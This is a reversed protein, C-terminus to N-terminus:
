ADLGGEEELEEGDMEEAADEIDSMEAAVLGLGEALAVYGPATVGCQRMGGAVLAGALVAPVYGPEAGEMMEDVEDPHRGVGLVESLLDLASVDQELVQRLLRRAVLDSMRGDEALRQILGDLAGMAEAREAKRRESQTRSAEKAAEKEKAPSARFPSAKGTEEFKQDVAARAVKRAVMEHIRGTEPHRAVHVTVECGQLLKRWTPVREGPDCVGTEQTSPRDDMDVYESNHAVAGGPGSFVKLAVDPAVVPESAGEAQRQMIQWAAESKARFCAPKLCLNPNV